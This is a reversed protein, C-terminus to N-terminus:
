DVVNNHFLLAAVRRLTVIYSIYKLFFRLLVILYAALNLFMLLGKSLVGRAAKIGALDCKFEVPATRDWIRSDIAM